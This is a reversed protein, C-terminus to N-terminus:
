ASAERQSVKILSKYFQGFRARALELANVPVGIPLFQKMGDIRVSGFFSDESRDVQYQLRDRFVGPDILAPTQLMERLQSDSHIANGPLFQYHDVNIMDDVLGHLYVRAEDRSLNFIYDQWGKITFARIVPKEGLWDEIVPDDSIRAMCLALFPRLMYHDQITSFVPYLIVSNTDHTAVVMEIFYSLPIVQNGYSLRSPKSTIVPGTLKGPIEGGAILGAYSALGPLLDAFGAQQFFQNFQDWMGGPDMSLRVSGPHTQRAVQCHVEKEFCRELSLGSQLSALYRRIVQLFFDFKRFGYAEHINQRDDMVLERSDFLGERSRLYYDAPNRLFVDITLHSLSIIEKSPAKKQVVAKHFGNGNMTEPLVTTGAPAHTFLIDKETISELYHVLRIIISNASLENGNSDRSVHSLILREKAAVLLELFLYSEIMYRDADGVKRRNMLLNLSSPHERTPFAGEEMGLIFVVKHPLNRNPVLSSINVGRVLYSGTSGSAHETYLEIYQRMQRSSVMINNGLLTDLRDHMSALAQLMRVPYENGHLGFTLIVNIHHLWWSLSRENKRKMSMAYVHESFLYFKELLENDPQRDLPYWTVTGLQQCDMNEFGHPYLTCLRLRHLQYGPSESDMPSDLMSMASFYGRLWELEHWNIDYQKQIFSNSVLVLLDRITLQEPNLDLYALLANRVPDEVLGGADILSYGLVDHNPSFISRIVPAYRDMSPVFVAIDSPRLKEDKELLQVATDYVQQVEAFIDEGTLFRISDDEPVSHGPDSRHFISDQISHLLSGPTRQQGKVWQSEFALEGSLSEELLSFLKLTERGAAGWFRLLQNDSENEQLYDGEFRSSVAASKLRNWRVDHPAEIDEWFEGCPNVQYIYVDRSLSLSYVLKIMLPSFHSINFFHFVEEQADHGAGNIIDVATKMNLATIQKMAERYTVKEAQVVADDGQFRFGDVLEPRFWQYTQFLRALQGALDWTKNIGAEEDVGQGTYRHFLTLEKQDPHNNLIHDIIVHHDQISVLRDPKLGQLKALFEFLGNEGLVVEVGASVGHERAVTLNLWKAVQPNPVVVPPSIFPSKKAAHYQKHFRQALSELDNSYYLYCAM